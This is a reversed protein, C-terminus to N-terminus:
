ERPIYFEFAIYPMDKRKRQEDEVQDLCEALKMLIEAFGKLTGNDDRLGKEDAIYNAEGFKKKLENAVEEEFSIDLVNGDIVKKLEERMKQLKLIKSYWVPIPKTNGRRWELYCGGSTKIIMDGEDGVTGPKYENDFIKPLIEFGKRPLWRAAVDLQEPSWEWYLMHYDKIINLLNSASDITAKIVLGEGM